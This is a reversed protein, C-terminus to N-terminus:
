FFGPPPRGGGARPTGACPSQFLSLIPPRLPFPCTWLPPMASSPNRSTRLRGPRVAVIARVLAPLQAPCPGRAPPRSPKRGPRWGSPAPGGGDGGVASPSVRDPPLSTSLPPSPRQRRQSAYNRQPRTPSPSLPTNKSPVRTVHCPYAPISIFRSPAAGMMRRRGAAQLPSPLRPRNRPRPPEFERGDAGNPCSPPTRGTVMGAAWRMSPPRPRNRPRLLKFGRGDAASPCSPPTGRPWPPVRHALPRGPPIHPAAFTPLCVKIRRNASPIQNRFPLCHPVEPPKPLRPAGGGARARPRPRATVLGSRPGRDGARPGRYPRAPGPGLRLFQFQAPSVRCYGIHRNAFFFHPTFTTMLNPCNVKPLRAGLQPRTPPTTSPM